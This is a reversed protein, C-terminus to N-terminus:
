NSTRAPLLGRSCPDHTPSLVPYAVTSSFALSTQGVLTDASGGRLGSPLFVIPIFVSDSLEGVRLVPCVRGGKERERGERGWDSPSFVHKGIDEKESYYALVTLVRVLSAIM